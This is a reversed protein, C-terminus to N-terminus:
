WGRCVRRARGAPRSGQVVAASRASGVSGPRAWVAVPSFRRGALGRRPLVRRRTLLGAPEGAVEHGEDASDQGRSPTRQDGPQDRGPQKRRIEALLCLRKGRGHEYRDGTSQDVARGSPQFGSGTERLRDRM